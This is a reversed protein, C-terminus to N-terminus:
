KEIAFPKQYVEIVRMPMNEPVLGAKLVIRQGPQSAFFAIFGSGLGKRAERSLITIKRPLPYYGQAVHAQFPQFYASDNSVAM